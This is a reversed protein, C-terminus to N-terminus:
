GPSDPFRDRFGSIAPPLTNADPPTRQSTSSRPQPHEPSPRTAGTPGSRSQRTLDHERTTGEM